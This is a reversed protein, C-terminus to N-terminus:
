ASPISAHPSLPPQFNVTSNTTQSLFDVTGNTDQLVQSNWGATEVATDSTDHNWHLTSIHRETQKKWGRGSSVWCIVLIYAIVKIIVVCDLFFTSMSGNRAFYLVMSPICWASELTYLKVLMAIIGMYERSADLAGILEIHCRRILMLHVIILVTVLVTIALQLILVTNFIPMSREIPFAHPIAAMIDVTIFGLFLFMPLTIVIVAYHTASWIVWLCWTQIAITLLDLTVSFVIGIVGVPQAHLYLTKYEIPGGPFDNHYVYAQQTVWTTAALFLIGCIMVVSSYVLTFIAQQQDHHNLGQIQPLLSLTCLTYLSLAIGWLLGGITTSAVLDLSKFLLLQTCGPATDSMAIDLRTASNM